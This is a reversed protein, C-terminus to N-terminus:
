AAHRIRMHHLDAVPRHAHRPWSKAEPCSPTGSAVKGDVDPGQAAITEEADEPLRPVTLRTGECTARLVELRESAKRRTAAARIGELRAIEEECQSDTGRCSKVMAALLVGICSLVLSLGSTHTPLWRCAIQCRIQLCLHHSFHLHCTRQSLRSRLRRRRCGNCLVPVNLWGANPAVKALSSAHVAAAGVMIVDVAARGEAADAPTVAAWLVGLREMLQRGESVREAQATCVLM